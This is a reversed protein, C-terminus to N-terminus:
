LFRRRNGLPPNRCSGAPEALFTERESVAHMHIAAHQSVSDEANTDPDDDWGDDQFTLTAAELATSLAM